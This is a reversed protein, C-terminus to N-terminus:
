NTWKRTFNAFLIPTSFIAMKTRYSSRLQIHIFLFPSAICFVFWNRYDWYSKFFCLPFFIMLNFTNSALLRTKRTTLEIDHTYFKMCFCFLSFVFCCRRRIYYRFCRVNSVINTTCICDSSVLQQNNNKKRVNAKFRNQVTHTCDRKGKHIHIYHIYTLVQRNYRLM